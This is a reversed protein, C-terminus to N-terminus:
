DCLIQSQSLFEHCVDSEEEEGEVLLDTLVCVCVCAFAFICIRNSGLRGRAGPLALPRHM